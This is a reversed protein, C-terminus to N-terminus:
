FTMNQTVDVSIYCCCNHRNLHKTIDVLFALDETMCYRVIRAPWLYYIIFILSRAAHFRIAPRSQGGPRVKSVGPRPPGPRMSSMYCLVVTYIQTRNGYSCPSADRGATHALSCRRCRGSAASSLGTGSRRHVSPSFVCAPPFPALLTLRM